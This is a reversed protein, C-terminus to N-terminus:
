SKPVEESSSIPSEVTPKEKMLALLVLGIMIWLVERLRRILAFAIGTVEDYGFTLLLLLYGGEQAGLSGPIFFGAAKILVSIAAISFASLLTVDM